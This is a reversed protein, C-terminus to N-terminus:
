AAAAQRTERTNCGHNWCLGDSAPQSGTETVIRRVFQSCRRGDRFRVKCQRKWKRSKTGDTGHRSRGIQEGIPRLEFGLKRWGYLISQYLGARTGAIKGSEHLMRALGGISIGRAEYARYLARLQDENLLRPRGGRKPPQLRGRRYQPDRALLALTACRGCLDVQRFRRGGVKANKPRFVPKRKTSDWVWRSASPDPRMLDLPAYNGPEIPDGCDECRLGVAGANYANLPPEYWLHTVNAATLFEDVDHEDLEHFTWWLGGSYLRKRWADATLGSAAALRQYADEPADFEGVWAEAIPRFESVPIM